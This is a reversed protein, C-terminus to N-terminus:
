RECVYQTNFLDLTIFIFYYFAYKASLSYNFFDYYNPFTFLNRFKHTCLWFSELRGKCM